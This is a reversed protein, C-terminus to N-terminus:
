WLVLLTRTDEVCPKTTELCSSTAPLVTPCIMRSAQRIGLLPQWTACEDLASSAIGEVCTCTHMCATPTCSFSLPAMLTSSTDDVPAASGWSPGPLVVQELERQRKINVAMCLLLGTGDHAKSHM